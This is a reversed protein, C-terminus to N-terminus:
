SSDSVKAEAQLAESTPGSIVHVVQLSAWELPEDVEGEEGEAREDAEGGLKELRV